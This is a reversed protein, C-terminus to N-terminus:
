IHLHFFHINDVINKM